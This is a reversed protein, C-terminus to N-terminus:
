TGQSPNILACSTCSPPRSISGRHARLSTGPPWAPPCSLPLLAAWSGGEEWLAKSQRGGWAGGGLLLGMFGPGLAGLREGPGCDSLPEWPIWGLM